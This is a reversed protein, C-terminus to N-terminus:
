QRTRRVESLCERQMFLRAGNFRRIVRGPFEYADNRPVQAPHPTDSNFRAVLPKGSARSIPNNLHTKKTCVPKKKKRKSLANRSNNPTSHQNISMQQLYPVKCTALKLEGQRSMNRGNSSERNRCSMWIQKGSSFILHTNGTIQLRSPKVASIPPLHDLAPIQFGVFDNPVIM